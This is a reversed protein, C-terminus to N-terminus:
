SDARGALEQTEGEMYLPLGTMASVCELLLLTDSPSHVSVGSDTFSWASHEGPVQTDFSFVWQGNEKRRLARELKMADSDSTLDFDIWEVLSGDKRRRSWEFVRGDEIYWKTGPIAVEAAKKVLEPNITKNNM